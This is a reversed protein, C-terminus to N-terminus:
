VSASSVMPPTKQRLQKLSYILIATTFPKALFPLSHEQVLEQADAAGSIFLIDVDLHEYKVRGALEIGNMRGRGMDLDTILLNLTLQGRSLHLATAADGATIVDYGDHRLAASVLRVIPEEDDVLLVTVVSHKSDM